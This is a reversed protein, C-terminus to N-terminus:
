PAEARMEEPTLGGSNRADPNSGASILLRYISDHGAVAAAHLATHDTENTLDPEAGYSLLLRVISEHGRLSAVQIPTDGEDNQGNPDAGSRLLHAASDVSGHFAALQLPTQGAIGSRVNPDAGHALMIEVIDDYGHISAVHLPLQMTDDKMDLRAGALLFLDVAVAEGTYVANFFHANTLDYGMERLDSRAQREMARRLRHDESFPAMRDSDGEPEGSPPPNSQDHADAYGSSAVGPDVQVTSDANSAAPDTSDTDETCGWLPLLLFIFLLVPLPRRTTFRRTVSAVVCSASSVVPLM